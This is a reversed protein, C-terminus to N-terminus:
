RDVADGDADATVIEALEMRQIVKRDRVGARKAVRETDSLQGSLSAMHVAREALGLRRRRWAIWVLRGVLERETPGSPAFEVHFERALADFAQPSEWPLLAARQADHGRKAIVSLERAATM